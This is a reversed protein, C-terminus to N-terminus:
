RARIRDLEIIPGAQHIGLLDTRKRADAEVALGDTQFDAPLNIPDYTVGDDGLIAYFGGELEIRKVVGVIHLSGVKEAGTGDGPSPMTWEGGSGGGCSSLLLVLVGAGFAQRIRRMPAELLASLSLGALRKM